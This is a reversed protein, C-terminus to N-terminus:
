RWDPDSDFDWNSWDYDESFEFNNNQDLDSHEDRGINLNEYEDDKYM